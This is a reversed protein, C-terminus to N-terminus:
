NECKCESHTHKERHEPNVGDPATRVVGSRPVCLNQMKANQEELKTHKELIILKQM